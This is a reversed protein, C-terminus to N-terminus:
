IHILSLGNADRVPYTPNASLASGLVGEVPPRNNITQSATLNMDVVLRGDMM